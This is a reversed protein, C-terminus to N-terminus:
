DNISISQTDKLAEHNYIRFCPDADKKLSCGQWLWVALFQHRHQWWKEWSRVERVSHLHLKWGPLLQAPALCSSATGMGSGSDSGSREVEEGGEM